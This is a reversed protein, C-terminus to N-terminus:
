FNVTAKVNFLRASLSNPIAFNAGNVDEIWTYSLTNDAAFANLVEARLVLSEFFNYHSLRVFKSLGLDLRYYEDGQFSNRLDPRNPPGFPYGSGINLNLYVRISPDNPIHDEFFIGINVRQDTPRRIYGRGDNAINEETRLLGLSFWSQTGPIFEGNVRFDIGQAYAETRNDAFYRLRINEVDYAIVDTLSKWYVDTNFIFDRGWMRFVKEVSGIVHLSKQAKLDPVIEGERSRLERYFPPQSYIGTSLRIALRDNIQWRYQIRPSILLEENQDWYNFRVGYNLIHASDRTATQNQVYFSYQLSNLSLENFISETVTVFDSSDIFAYENIRDDIVQWSVGAGFELLNQDNIILENRSEANVISAVLDNRGYNYNTGIGRIVVCDDFTGSGPDNDVDCLRYGGEVDFYEKELTRVGSLILNTTFKNSVKHRLRSGVQYTDYNLIEQGIFATQLRFNAQVSGFETDQSVPETLYRNRAYAFLVSLKTRNLQMRKKKTLDFTLLSQVDTFKPFYQGEVELTNLLYRSDRHRVGVIYEARDGGLAGGIYGTGGLLGLTVSGEQYRPSKYEINLSSSLKDGYKAEWGGAYFNIDKVLGPNVFSLGEQRGSNALFPRYIPIDNVYVLNEDFNGGRVSYTSALENNSAVGPLTALVQSFDGFTSPLSEASKPAIRIVPAVSIPDQIASDTVVIRDLVARDESLTVNQELRGADSFIIQIRETRYGVFSYVVMGSPEPLVLEYAGNSDTITGTTSNELRINAGLLPQGNGDTVRGELVYQQAALPVTLLLLIGSILHIRM